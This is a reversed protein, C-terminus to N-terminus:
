QWAADAWDRWVKLRAPEAGMQTAKWIGYQETQETTTQYLANSVMFHTGDSYTGLPSRAQDICFRFGAVNEPENLTTNGPDCRRWASLPQLTYLTNFQQIAGNVTKLYLGPQLDDLFRYKSPNVGDRNANDLFNTTTLHKAVQARGYRGENASLDPQNPDYLPIDNNVYQASKIRAQLLRVFHSDQLAKAAPTDSGVKNAIYEDFATLYPWDMPYNVWNSQGGPNVTMQLQYWQNSRYYSAVINDAEWATYWERTIQGAANKDEQYVMHPALYFLSVSNFPWGHAEGRGKWAGSTKDKDGIFWTQNGELSYDQALEWQKVANWHLMSAVSREIFANPTFAGAKGAAMTASSALSQLHAAGIQAGYIGKDAIHNGRGGGLFTYADWGTFGMMANIQVRLDPILHSWDALNGNPNKNRQFWAILDNYRGNPNQMGNTPHMIGNTFGSGDAQTPWVDLPHITPLWANWDPFQMAIATERANMTAKPNMVRDVDAQTLALPADLPKGFLAKVADAPTALVAELGAGAAWRTACDASNCDLGPGPQYPPNWPRGKEVYPVHQLSARLFAVIQQGQTESLGHFRSRQVIANNSYNFYQLDRGNDAHCSACAAQLTRTVIASKAITGHAYWLAKGAAADAATVASADRESLPDFRQLTTSDVQLASADQLQLNLVRYGNSEGDTGNFRFQIRNTAPLAVLRARTAADLPLTIRTTYFGGNVGGHLREDDALIVNADTIDVWPTSDDSGGGLVRVSAKIRAPPATTAEFEPASYFGCRHCQFWLQAVSGLQNADVGLRAEALAPTAPSGNGLVELPLTVAAGGAAKSSAGGLVSRRASSDNQSADKGAGCAALLAALGMACLLRAGRRDLRFENM